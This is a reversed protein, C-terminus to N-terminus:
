LLEPTEEPSAYCFIFENYIIRLGCLFTELSYVFKDLFHSFVNLFEAIVSGYRCEHYGDILHSLLLAM